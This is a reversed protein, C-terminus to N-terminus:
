KKPIKGLQDQLRMNAADPSSIGVAQFVQKLFHHFGGCPNHSKRDIERSAAKGTLDRYILAAVTAVYDARENKPRGTQGGRGAPPFNDVVAQTAKAAQRAREAATRLLGKLQAWEQTMAARQIPDDALDDALAANRWAEVTNGDAGKLRDLLAASRRAIEKLERIVKGASATPRGALDQGKKRRVSLEVRAKLDAKRLALAARAIESEEVRMKHPLDRIARELRSLAEEEEADFPEGGRGRAGPVRHLSPPLKPTRAM